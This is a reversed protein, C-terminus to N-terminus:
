AILTYQSARELDERTNVNLFWRAAPLCIPHEVQGAQVLLEVPVISVAQGLATAATQFAAFCGLHGAALETELAPLAVRDVVAPFTHAFGNVSCLTIARGTVRAHHLLFRLLSAPLLPLDVSLFVARSALTSALAACVGSLPGLNPRVDETIPAFSRLDARTGAISSRFGAERLISLAHIVLPKGHLPLMAKDQGMRSSQGGALVVGFAESESILSM